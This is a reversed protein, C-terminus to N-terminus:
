DSEVPSGSCVGTVLEALADVGRSARIASGIRSSAERYSSESLVTRVARPSPKRGPV